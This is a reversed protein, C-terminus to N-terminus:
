AYRGSSRVVASEDAQKSEPFRLPLQEIWLPSLGLSTGLELVTRRFALYSQVRDADKQFLGDNILADRVSPYYIPWRQPDQIHWFFSVFFGMSSESPTKNPAGSRILAQLYTLFKQLKQQASAEDIPLALAFKLQRTLEDRDPAYPVLMNLFMAGGYGGAGFTKWDGNSQQHFERKFQEVQPRRRALTM